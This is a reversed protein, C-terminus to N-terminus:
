KGKLSKVYREVKWGDDESMRGDWPAMGTNPSGGMITRMVQWDEGGNKFEGTTFDRPKPDLAMGAPGDGKGNDGHCTACNKVFVAKGAAQTAADDPFPNKKGKYKAADPMKDIEAEPLTAVQAGPGGATASAGSAGSAGAAGTGGSTTSTTTTGGPTTATTTTTTTTAATPTSAPPPTSNQCATFMMTAGALAACAALSLSQKTIM